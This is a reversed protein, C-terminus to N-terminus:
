KLESIIHKVKKLFDDKFKEHEYELHYTNHFGFRLLVGSGKLYITYGDVDSFATVGQYHKGDDSAEGHQIIQEYVALIQKTDIDNKM